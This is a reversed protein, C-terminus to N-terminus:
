SKKKTNANLKDGLWKYFDKDIVTRLEAYKINDRVNEPLRVWDKETTVLRARRRAAMRVLKQIDSETYQYHDAFAKKAVVNKLSDFFKRPYGIGAFAVLPTGARYPSVTENHAYFVPINDPLRLPRRPTGTKIVIVADARRLAGMGERLPGAPLLFGNGAALKEDFVVISIDKKIRPNQFGDDMVIPRNDSQLNLLRVNSKRHGTHVQLGARALM